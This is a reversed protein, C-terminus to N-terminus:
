VASTQSYCNGCWNPRVSCCSYAYFRSVIQRFEEATWRRCRMRVMSFEKKRCHNVSKWQPEM